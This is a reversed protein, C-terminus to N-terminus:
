GDVAKLTEEESGRTRTRHSKIIHLDQYFLPLSVVRYHDSCLFPEGQTRQNQKKKLNRPQENLHKKWDNEMVTFYLIQVFTCCELM